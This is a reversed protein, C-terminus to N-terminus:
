FTEALRTALAILPVRSDEEGLEAVIEDQLLEEIWEKNGFFFAFFDQNWCVL